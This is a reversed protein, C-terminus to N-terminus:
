ISALTKRANNRNISGITVDFNGFREIVDQGYVYHTFRGSKVRYVLGRFTYVGDKKAKAKDHILNINEITNGYKVLKM